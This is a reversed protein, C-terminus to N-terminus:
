QVVRALRLLKSSIELGAARAQTANISFVVRKGEIQMAIVVPQESVAPDDSVILIPASALKIRNKQLWEKENASLLLVQCRDYGDAPLAQVAIVRNHAPQNNLTALAASLPHGTAACIVLPGPTPEALEPWNTFNIFNYLYAVKLDLEQALPNQAHAAVGLAAVCGIALWRCLVRVRRYLVRVLRNRM